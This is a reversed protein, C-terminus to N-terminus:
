HCDSETIAVTFDNVVRVGRRLCQNQNADVLLVDYSAPALPQNVSMGPRLPSQLLNPGWDQDNSWSIHLRYFVRQSDNRITLTCKGGQVVTTSSHSAGSGVVLLLLIWGAIIAKRM